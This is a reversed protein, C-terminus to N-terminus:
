PTPSIEKDAADIREQAYRDAADLVTIGDARASEIMASLRDGIAEAEEYAEERTGDYHEKAVTILGGGNVVYDPAYLIGRDRLEDAHHRRDLINNAAGVVAECDLRPITEDNVVGGVACPSFVDCSVDYIEDPAVVDVDYESTLAEINGENVDTVTVSAGHDCLKEALGRGVKGLGQVAVEADGVSQPGDLYQTCARVCHFVGHATIPSPDGLGESTGVVSDTEEDIVDMDAVSTGVDVSTVYKGSLDEVARGYARLLADTKEEEPDGYIVAKGGGLDLDAAAAKYTMARSLRLGDRLAAQEDEYDYMRTGGLAPGLSTDHVSIIARLGTEADTAYTVQEHDDFDTAGWVM